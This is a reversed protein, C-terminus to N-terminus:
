DAATTKEYVEQGITYKKLEGANVAASAAKLRWGKAAAAYLSTSTALIDTIDSDSLRTDEATGGDPIMEMCYRRVQRISTEDATM